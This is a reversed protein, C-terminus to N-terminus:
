SYHPSPPIKIDELDRLITQPTSYASDPSGYYTRFGNGVYLTIQGSKKARIVEIIPYKGYKEILQEIQWSDCRTDKGRRRPSQPGRLHDLAARGSSLSM